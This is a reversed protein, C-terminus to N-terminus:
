IKGRSILTLFIEKGFTLFFLICTLVLWSNCWNDGMFEPFSLGWVSESRCKWPTNM